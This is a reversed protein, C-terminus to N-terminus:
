SLRDLAPITVLGHSPLDVISSGDDGIPPEVIPLAFTNLQAFVRDQGKVGSIGDVV